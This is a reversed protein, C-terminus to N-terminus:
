RYLMKMLSFFSPKKFFLDVKMFDNFYEYLILIRKIFVKSIIKEKVNM